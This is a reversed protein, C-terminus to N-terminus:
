RVVVVKRAPYDGIKVLYIGNPLNANEVRHGVIDYILLEEITGEVVIHRGQTYILIKDNESSDISSIPAFHAIATINDSISISAPNDYCLIEDGNENNYEWHLFRYGDAPFAMVVVTDLYFASDEGSVSGMEPNASVPTIHYLERDFFAMFSTDSTVYILRPNDNNGDDWHDFKYGHQPQGIISASSDCAVDWVFSAIGFVNNESSLSVIFDPSPPEIFNYPWHWESQYNELTNCPINYLANYREAFADMGCHPPIQPLLYISTLNTCHYFAYNPINKVHSGVILTSVGFCNNFPTNWVQGWAGIRQGMYECSDANFFITDIWYCDAFADDGIYKISDGVTLSTIRIGSFMDDPIRKVGDGIILNTMQSPNPFPGGALCNEANFVVSEISDCGSFGGFYEVSKGIFLNKLHKCNVFAYPSISTVSDSIIVTQINNNEHNLSFYSNPTHDGHSYLINAGNYYVTTIGSCGSFADYDITIGSPLSLSTIETCQDFAYQIIRVVHLTDGNHIVTSPIILDGSPKTYGVWHYGGTWQLANPYTINVTSDTVYSFYLTNGSISASFDYVPTAKAVYTCLFCSLLFLHRTISIIHKMKVLSKSM